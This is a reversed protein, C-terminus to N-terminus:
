VRRKVMREAPFEQFPLLGADPCADGVGAGGYASTHPLAVAVLGANVGGRALAGLLLALILIMLLLLLLLLLLVFRSALHGLM